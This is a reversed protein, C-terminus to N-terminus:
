TLKALVVRCDATKEQVLYVRFTIGRFIQLLLEDKLRWEEVWSYVSFVVLLKNIQESWPSATASSIDAKPKNKKEHSRYLDSFCQHRSLFLWFM